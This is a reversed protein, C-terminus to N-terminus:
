ENETLYKLIRAPNGGVVVNKPIDKTVVANSGIITNKGITVNPLISVGEGIWVNDNIVVGGKSVLERSSPLSKISEADINGHSHDAIFVKSAIIVDNGIYIKNICGIHCDYNITVNNGITIQPSYRKDLYNDYAELRLRENCLFNDGVTIYNGGKIYSPYQIYFNTGAKKLVGKVAYSNIRHKLSRYNHLFKYTIILSLIRLMFNLAKM